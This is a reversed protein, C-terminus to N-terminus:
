IKAKGDRIWTSFDALRTAKLKASTKGAETFNTQFNHRLESASAIKTMSKAFERDRSVAEIFTSLIM